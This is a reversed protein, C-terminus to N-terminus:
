LPGANSRRATRKRTPRSLLLEIVEDVNDPRVVLATVGPVEALVRLWECQDVHVRGKASKLELSLMQGDRVATIDPWGVMGSLPTRWGHKTRAPRFHTWRWGGLELAEVVLAQLENETM